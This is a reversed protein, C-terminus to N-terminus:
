CVSFVSCVCLVISGRVADADADASSRVASHRM